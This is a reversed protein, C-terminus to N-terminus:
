ISMPILSLLENTAWEVLREHCNIYKYPAHKDIVANMITELYYVSEDVDDFDLVPSWNVTSM